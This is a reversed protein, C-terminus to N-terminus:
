HKTLADTDLNSLILDLYCIQTKVAVKLQVHRRNTMTSYLFYCNNRQMLSSDLDVM